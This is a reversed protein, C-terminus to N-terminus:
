PRFTTGVVNHTGDEIGWVVYGRSKGLLAASNSLASIYEGIVEPEAQNQKFEVWETEQPLKCLEHVLSILYERTRELSVRIRRKCLIVTWVADGKDIALGGRSAM